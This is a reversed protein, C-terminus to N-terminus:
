KRGIRDASFIAIVTTFMDVCVLIVSMNYPSVTNLSKVWITGYQSAFVQGTAVPVTM